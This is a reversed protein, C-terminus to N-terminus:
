GAQRYWQYGGTFGSMYGNAVDQAVEGVYEAPFTGTLRCKCNGDNGQRSRQCELFSKEGRLDILMVRIM